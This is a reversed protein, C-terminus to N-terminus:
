ILTFSTKNLDPRNLWTRFTSVDISLNLSDFAENANKYFIGTEVNLCSLTSKHKYGCEMLGIEYAHKNNESRNVWELNELNNNAKNGDIHNVDSVNRTNELFALAVLRHGLFKNGRGLQYQHYGNNMLWPTLIKSPRVFVQPKGDKRIITKRYESSKVSGLSSVQYRGEFGVVDKWVEM